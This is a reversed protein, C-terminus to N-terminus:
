VSCTAAQLDCPRKMGQTEAFEGRRTNLASPKDSQMVKMATGKRVCHLWALAAIYREGTSKGGAARAVGAQETCEM